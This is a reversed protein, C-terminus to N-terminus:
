QISNDRLHRVKTIASRVATVIVVDDDHKQLVVAKKSSQIISM